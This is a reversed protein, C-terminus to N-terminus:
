IPEPTRTLLATILMEDDISRGTTRKYEAQAVEWAAFDEEFHLLRQAMLLADRQPGLRTLWGAGLMQDAAGKQTRCAARADAIDYGFLM